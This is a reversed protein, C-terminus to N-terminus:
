TSTPTAWSMPSPLTTTTCRSTASTSWCGSCRADMTVPDGFKRPDNFRVGTLVGDPMTANAEEIAHLAVDLAEARNEAVAMVDNWHAGEPIFYRGVPYEDPDNAIKEAQERTQGQAIWDQIIHERQDEFVDSLCKYTLLGLIHLKFDSADVTGRLIDAADWLLDKLEDFTLVNSDKATTM